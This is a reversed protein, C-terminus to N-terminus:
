RIINKIDELSKVVFDPKINFENSIPRAYELGENNELLITRCGAKKGAIVDNIGDGIMWSENLDIDLDKAAQMLMGPKPKRCDCELRYKEILATPFHFCYYQGDIVGGMGTLKSTMETKVKEFNEESIKELGVGAQNSAIINLYGKEKTHKLLGGIGDIFEIQEPVKVTQVIVEDPNYILKIIIGDRDFFVAKNM